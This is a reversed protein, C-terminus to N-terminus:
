VHARGIQYGEDFLVDALDLGVLESVRLGCGYLVELIARARLGQVDAGFPQSLMTDIQAISLVDPLSEPQKPLPLSAAPNKSTYGERVLFKHFGKIASLNRKISSPARGLMALHAEFDTIDKRTIDDCTIESARVCGFKRNEGSSESSRANEYGRVKGNSEGGCAGKHDSGDGGRVGKHDSGDGGCVGGHDSGDGGCAGEHDSGDCGRVCDADCVARSEVLFELYAGLDREYAEVTRPSSGREIRLYSLYEKLLEDM